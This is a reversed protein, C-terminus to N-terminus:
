GGGQKEPVSRRRWGLLNPLLEAELAEMEIAEEEEIHDFGLLHLLGHLALFAVEEALGWPRGATLPQLRPLAGRAAQRSATPLSVIIDGLELPEGEPKFFPEGELLAFSLVDTSKDIGRYQANLTRLEEDSSLSLSLSLAPAPRFPILQPAKLIRYIRRRLTAVSLQASLPNRRYISLWDGEDSLEGQTVVQQGSIEGTM